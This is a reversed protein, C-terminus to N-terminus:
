ELLSFSSRATAETGSSLDKVTLVLEYTDSALAGVDVRLEQVLDSTGGMDQYSSTVFPADTHGAPAAAAATANRDMHRPAISYRVEYHCTQESDLALGYVEYYGVLQHGRQVVRIPNPVVLRDNKVFRSRWDDGAYVISSALQVDSLALKRGDLRPVDVATNCTGEDGSALDAIRISLRYLGEPVNFVMQGPVLQAAMTTSFDASTVTETYSDRAAENANGDLLVADARYRAIYTSDKWAFKLDQLNLQYHLEVRMRGPPGKFVDVDFVYWLTKHANGPVAWREGGSEYKRRFRMTAEEKKRLL